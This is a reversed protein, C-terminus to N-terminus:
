NGGLMEIQIIQALRHTCKSGLSRIAVSGHAPWALVHAYITDGERTFRIDESTFTTRKTDTFAGSAVQTPGEGHTTWPRTAYIGRGNVALWAGIEGAGAARSGPHYRRGAAWHEFAARGNKSVVDILDGIIDNAVKYNHNDIYGWSNKSVSTNNQWFLGRIRSEQGREIDFVTSGASLM